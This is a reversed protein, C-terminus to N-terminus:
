RTRDLTITVSGAFPTRVNTADAIETMQMDWTATKTSKSESPLLMPTTQAPLLQMVVLGVNAMSTDFTMTALPTGIDTANLRVQAAFSWGSVDEPDGTEADSFVLTHRFRDGVYILLDLAVPADGIAVM